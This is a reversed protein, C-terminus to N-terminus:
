YWVPVTVAMVGHLVSCVISHIIIFCLLFFIFSNSQSSLAQPVTQWTVHLHNIQRKARM